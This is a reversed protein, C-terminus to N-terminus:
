SAYSRAVTRRRRSARSSSRYDWIRCLTALLAGILGFQRAICCLDRVLDRFRRHQRFRPPRTVSDFIIYHRLQLQRVTIPGEPALASDIARNSDGIVVDWALPHVATDAPNTATKYPSDDLLLTNEPGHHPFQQWLMPLEKLVLRKHKNEPHTHRTLTCLDESFIGAPRQGPGAVLNVLPLVNHTQATSWVVVEFKALCWSFFERAHPRLYVYKMKMVADPTRRTLTAKQQRDLLLGNLDLVLLKKTDSGTCAGTPTPPATNTNRDLDRVSDGGGGGRGRGGGSARHRRQGRGRGRGRGRGPDDGAPRGSMKRSLFLSRLGTTAWRSAPVQFRKIDLSIWVDLTTV